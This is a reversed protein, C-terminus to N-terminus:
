TDLRNAQLRLIPPYYNTNVANINMSTLIPHPHTSLGEREGEGLVKKACLCLCERCPASLIKKPKGGGGGGKGPSSSYIAVNASQSISECANYFQICKFNCMFTAFLLM